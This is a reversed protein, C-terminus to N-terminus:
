LSNVNLIFLFIACSAVIKSFVVGADDAHPETSSLVRIRSVGPLSQLNRPAQCRRSPWSHIPNPGRQHVSRSTFFTLCLFRLHSATSRPLASVATSFFSSSAGPLGPLLSLSSSWSWFAAATATATSSSLLQGHRGDSHQERQRLLSLALLGANQTPNSRNRYLMSSLHAWILRQVGFPGIEHGM